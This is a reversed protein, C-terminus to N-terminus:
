CDLLDATNRRAISRIRYRSFSFSHRLICSLIYTLPYVAMFPLESDQMRNGQKCWQSVM